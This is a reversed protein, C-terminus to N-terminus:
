TVAHCSLHQIDIAAPYHVLRAQCDHKCRQHLRSRWIEIQGGLRSDKVPFYNDYYIPLQLKKTISYGVFSHILRLSAGSETSYFVWFM